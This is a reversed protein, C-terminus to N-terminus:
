MYKSVQVATASEELLLWCTYEQQLSHENRFTHHVFYPFAHTYGSVFYLQMSCSKKVTIVTFRYKINEKYTYRISMVTSQKKNQPMKDTFTIESVLIILTNTIEEVVKQHEPNVARADPLHIM